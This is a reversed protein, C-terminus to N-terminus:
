GEVSSMMWFDAALDQNVMYEFPMTFYGHYGWNPGWSNQILFRRNANNYGVCLVAHGGVANDSTIPMKLIGTRDMENSEFYDYVTFGFVFPFGSALCARTDTLTQTMSRYVLAQHKLAEIFCTPDPKAAFRSEIYPWLGEPCVGIKVAGKMGSRISCGADSSVSGEYARANRYLFLRSPEIEALTQKKICFRFANAIANATCSGLGGQDWVPPCSSRLDVKEPLAFAPPAMFRYAGDRFDPLDPKWGWTRETM